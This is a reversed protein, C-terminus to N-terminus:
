KCSSPDARCAVLRANAAIEDAKDKAEQAREAATRDLTAAAFNFAGLAQNGGTEKGYRVKTIAGSEALVLEFTQKGFARAKPIPLSFPAGFQPAAIKRSALAKGDCAGTRVEVEAVGPQVLQLDTPSKPEANVPMFAPPSYKIVTACVGGVFMALAEQTSESGKAVQVPVLGQGEGILDINEAYTITVPKKDGVEKIRECAFQENAELGVIGVVSSIATVSSKLIDEGRGTASANVGKLRGDEYLEFTIDADAMRSDLEHIPFTHWQGQARYKPQFEVTVVEFIKKDTPDCAFTRNVALDVTAHSPYYGLTIQPTHACSSTLVAVGVILYTFRSMVIELGLKQGLYAITLVGM